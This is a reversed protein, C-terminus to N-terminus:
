SNDINIESCYKLKKKKLDWKCVAWTLNNRSISVFEAAFMTKTRRLSIYQTSEQRTKKKKQGM